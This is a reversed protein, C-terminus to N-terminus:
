RLRAVGEAPVDGQRAMRLVQMTRSFWGRITATAAVLAFWVGVFGLIELEFVGGVVLAMVSLTWCTYAVLKSLSITAELM